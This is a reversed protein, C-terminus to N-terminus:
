LEVKTQFGVALLTEVSKVLYELYKIDNRGRGPSGQSEERRRQM